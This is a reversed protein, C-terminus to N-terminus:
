ESTGSRVARLAELLETEDYPKMLFSKAGAELCEMVKEKTGLTEASFASAPDAQYVHFKGSGRTVTIMIATAPLRPGHPPFTPGGFPGGARAVM